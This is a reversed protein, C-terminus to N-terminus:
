IRKSCVREDISYFEIGSLGVIQDIGQSENEFVTICDLGCKGYGGFWHELAKAYRKPTDKLLGERENTHKQNLKEM